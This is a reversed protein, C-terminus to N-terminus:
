PKSECSSSALSEARTSAPAGLKIVFARGRYLRVYPLARGLAAIVTERDFGGTM